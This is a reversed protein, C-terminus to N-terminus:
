TISHALLTSLNMNGSANLTAVSYSAGGAVGSPDVSIVANNGSVSVQVYNGITSANRNWGTTSLLPRLDFVDGNQMVWGYINDNGQSAGPLVITNNAGSDSIMNSGSGANITNGSGAVRITDNGSGTTISNGGQYSQVSETGGTATLTDGTGDIFIMHDGATASVTTNSVTIVATTATTSIVQGPTSTTPTSATGGTSSGSGIAVTQTAQQGSSDTTHITITDSTGGSYTLNSLAANVQWITGTLSIGTTGSGQHTAGWADVATLTGTQDTITATVTAPHTSAYTDTIQVGGIAVSHGSPDAVSAPAAVSMGASSTSGTGTTSGSGSGTSGTSGSAAGTSGTSGGSGTGTSGVTTGGSPTVEILLPDNGLSVTISNTNNASAISSTGTVPDFVLIQSATTALNLTVSHTGATEDWLALWDSGDSKQMLLTNDGAQAGGLTFTLSGPTFSTATAGTDALLSTLNHLSTGAPTPTGDSNMLGYAGSGDNFLAYFYTKANGDLMSDLAGQVVYQAIAGQSFTSASWGMETNMVQRSAAALHADSNIQLIAANPTQGVNPYTHANAYNAYASLDGVTGYNGTWGNAATWGAGFSMNIVPLGLSQGLAYVQQQFSAAIWQNNGLAEPYADDEENGGEIDNLIGESALQAVYGLETSMGSPSTQGIYDDFKAGTADAVQLWASADSGNSASDRINKVGLYNIAAEVTALNQYGYADFDIHTNIGLSNVFSSATIATLTTM